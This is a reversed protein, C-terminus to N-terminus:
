KPLKHSLQAYSKVEIIESNFLKNISMKIEARRDNTKYESRSLAIFISDFSKTLEFDRRQECIFWLEKNALKLEIYLTSEMFSTLKLSHVIQLLNILENEAHLKRDQHSIQEIKIELISVKDFLEAVSVPIEIKM